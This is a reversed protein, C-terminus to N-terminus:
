KVRKAGNVVYVGAPLTNWVNMEGLFQGTLTFIGKANAKVETNEIATPMKAPAVLKFRYDNASNAAASFSYTEGESVAVRAGTELDILDFERGEAKAFSITFNGGKVTSFGVYTNELDDTAFYDIKEGEAVYINIDSNMYKEYSDENNECLDVDDWTGNENAVNITVKTANEVAASRRPASATAPEYVMSVYNIATEEVYRNNNLMFAQMPKLTKYQNVLKNAPKADWTITGNTNQTAVWIAHAINESASLASVLAPADIEATYSNAFPNWKMNANLPANVNGVLEGSITITPAADGFARYALLNYAAFPKDLKALVAPNNDYAGGIYGLDTWDNNEFVEVSAYVADDGAKSSISKATTYTPIGFWEWQLNNNDQWWSNTTFEVIANPHKNSTVAPNFLFTAYKGTNSNHQLVINGIVPAVIGQNGTVIFKGGAEVIIKAKSGMIVRGVELTYGDEITLQQDFNQSIQLEALTLKKNESGLTSLGVVDEMPDDDEALTHKWNIAQGNQWSAVGLEVAAPATGQSIVMTTGGQGNDVYTIHTDGQKGTTAADALFDALTQEGITASGQSASGGIITITTEDTTSKAEEATRDSIKMVAEVTETGVQITGGQFTGGTITITNVKSEGESYTISEDIAYGHESSVKTDGEITVDMDGVYNSASEMVIASGSAKVGSNTAAAATYTEGTGKVTANKFDVEGSKVYAGVGGEVYGEVLWRAYGSAYIGVPKKAADDKKPLATVKGTPYIHIFPCYQDDTALVKYDAPILTSSFEVTDKTNGATKRKNFFFNTNGLDGNSKIGYKQGNVTGRIDVRVGNAISKGSANEATSYVNTIYTLTPKAPVATSYAKQAVGGKIIEAITLPTDYYDQTIIVGDEIELRTYYEVNEQSPDVTKNISGTLYFLNSYGSSPMYTAQVKGSAPRSNSIKLWGHTILFSYRVGSTQLDYGNLDIELHRSADNMNQTGLWMMHTLQISSTLKIVDGSAANQWATEFQADTSVSHTAAWANTGILLAAAMLVFSYFKRM